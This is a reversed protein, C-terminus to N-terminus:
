GNVHQLPEIMNLADEEDALIEGLHIPNIPHKQM